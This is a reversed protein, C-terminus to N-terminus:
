LNEEALKTLLAKTADDLEGTEKLGRTKQFRKLFSTWKKSRSYGEAYGRYLKANKALLQYRAITLSNVYVTWITNVDNEPKYKIKVFDGKKLEEPKLLDKGKKIKMKSSGFIFNKVEKKGKWELSVTIGKENTETIIGTFYKSGRSKSYKKGHGKGYGKSFAINVLCFCSVLLVILIKKLM